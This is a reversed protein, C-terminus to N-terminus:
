HFGYAYRSSCPGPDYLKREEDDRFSYLSSKQVEEATLVVATTTVQQPRGRLFSFYTTFGLSVCAVFPIRAWLPCVSFNFLFAPVWTQWCIKCDEWVNNRYKSM